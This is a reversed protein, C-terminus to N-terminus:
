ACAITNGEYLVSGNEYVTELGLVTGRLLVAAGEGPTVDCSGETAAPIEVECTVVVPGADPETGADVETGGGADPVTGQDDDDDGLPKINVGCGPALALAACALVGARALARFTRSLPSRRPHM